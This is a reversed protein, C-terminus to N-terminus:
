SIPNSSTTSSSLVKSDEFYIISVFALHLYNIYVATPVMPALANAQDTVMQFLHLHLSSVYNQLNFDDHVQVQQV